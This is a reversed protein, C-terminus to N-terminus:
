SRTSQESYVTWCKLPRRDRRRSPAAFRAWRSLWDLGQTVRECDFSCPSQGELYDAATSLTTETFNSGIRKVHSKVEALKARLMLIDDLRQTKVTKMDCRADRLTRTELKLYQGRGRFRDADAEEVHNIDILCSEMAHAWTALTETQERAGDEQVLKDITVNSM